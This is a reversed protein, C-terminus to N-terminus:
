GGRNDYAGEDGDRDDNGRQAHDWLHRKLAAQAEPSWNGAGAVAVWYGSQSWSVGAWRSCAVTM